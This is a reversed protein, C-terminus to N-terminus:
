PGRDIPPHLVTVIQNRAHEDVPLDTARALLVGGSVVGASLATRAYEWDRDSGRVLKALVLDHPELCWAVALVGPTRPPIEVRVLRDEWGSPPTATTPGVGHAYYGFTLQFHSGDGIAGDVDEARDPDAMPYLDVEM